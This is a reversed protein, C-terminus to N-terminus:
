QAENNTVKGYVKKGNYYGCHPCVRHSQITESCNSCSVLGSVTLKFHTRRLRKRTKSVKRYPVAM